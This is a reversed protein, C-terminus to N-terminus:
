CGDATTGAACCPSRRVHCSASMTAACSWCHQIGPPSRKSPYSWSGAPGPGCGRGDRNPGAGATYRRSIAQGAIAGPKGAILQGLMQGALQAAEVRAVDSEATQREVDRLPRVAVATATGNVRRPAAGPPASERKPCWVSRGCAKCKTPYGGCETRVENRHGRSADWVVLPVAEESEGLCLSAM